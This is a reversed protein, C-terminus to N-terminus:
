KGPRKAPTVWDRHWDLSWLKELKVLQGHGDVFGLNIAGPLDGKPNFMMNKSWTAGGHRPLTLRVMAGAYDDGTYLNRAPPDTEQPWTDIWNSDATVPAAAAPTETAPAAPAAPPPTTTAPAAAPATAPAAPAAPKAPEAQKECAALALVACAVLLPRAIRIM